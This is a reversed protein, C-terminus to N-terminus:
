QLLRNNFEVVHIQLTRRWLSACQIESVCQLGYQCLVEISRNSIASGKSTEATAQLSAVLHPSKEDNYLRFFHESRIHSHYLDHLDYGCRRKSSSERHKPSVLM